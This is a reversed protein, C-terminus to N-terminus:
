IVNINKGLAMGNRFPINDGHKCYLDCHRGRCCISMFIVEYWFCWLKIQGGCANSPIFPLIGIQRKLVERNFSFDINKDRQCLSSFPETSILKVFMRGLAQKPGHSLSNPIFVLVTLLLIGDVMPFSKDELPCKTGFHRRISTSAVYDRRMSTLVVDNKRWTGAPGTSVTATVEGEPRCKCYWRYILKSLSNVNCFAVFYKFIVDRCNAAM